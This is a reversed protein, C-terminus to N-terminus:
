NMGSLDTLNQLAPGIWNFSVAVTQRLFIKSIPYDYLTFVTLSGAVVGFLALFLGSLREPRLFFLIGYAAVVLQYM